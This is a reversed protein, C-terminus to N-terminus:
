LKRMFLTPIRCMYSILLQVQLVSKFSKKKCSKLVINIVM